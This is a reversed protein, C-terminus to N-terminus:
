VEADLTAVLEALPNDNGVGGDANADSRESM